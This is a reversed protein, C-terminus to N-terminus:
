FFSALTTTIRGSTYQSFSFDTYDVRHFNVGMKLNHNGITKSFDDIIQYQTVNRGQPVRYTFNGLGYFSTGTFQLTTPFVALVAGPDPPGFKASYYQASVIFQNIATASFTHSHSIQGQMEPQPSFSNFIPNIPDT